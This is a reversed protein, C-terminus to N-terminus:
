HSHGAPQGRPRDARPGGPGRPGQGTRSCRAARTSTVYDGLIVAGISDEELNLALGYVGSEFELMEMAMAGRMGYIRAIGDGLEVITGM